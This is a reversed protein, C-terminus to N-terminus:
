KKRQLLTLPDKPKSRYRVEFYLSPKEVRGSTGVSAVVDGRAVPRGKVAHVQMLHAYVTVLSGPHDILVVNGLGALKGVHGVKGQAAARVPTGEQAEITIGNQEAGTEAGFARVVRGDVPWMLTKSSDKVAPDAPERRNIGNTVQSPAAKPIFIRTNARVLYPPSLRNAEALQNLDVNHAKAINVLQEDKRAVYYLGEPSSDVQPKILQSRQQPNVGRHPCATLAIAMPISLLIIIVRIV